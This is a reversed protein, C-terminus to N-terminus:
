GLWEQWIKIVQAREDIYVSEDVDADRNLLNRRHIKDRLTVYVQTLQDAHQKNIVEAAALSEFIRVNDSWKTLSSKDGSFRLVLYQALFEIDTIGGTDQKLMFRGAKKAALHQRMKERMEVVDTALKALDRECTLVRHRTDNFSEELLKDGYIVRARVLAQHEWTWAEELQYSEFSEVSCVLLGSNGSPRLRTDVDYL